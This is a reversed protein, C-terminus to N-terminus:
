GGISSVPGSVSPSVSASCRSKLAFARRIARRVSRGDGARLMSGLGIGEEAFLCPLLAGAATFRLRSCTGCPPTSVSSIFGVRGQTLGPLRYSDEVSLRAGEVPELPGWIRELREKVSNMAVPVGARESFRRRTYREIFRIWLGRKATFDVLSEVEDDNVGPLLVTNLKVTEFARSCEEIAALIRRHGTHGTIAHFREAVLTDLSINVRDLGAHSLEKAREALGIGNTTLTTEAIGPASSVARVIDALDRRLLPEGGTIRVKRVGEAGGARALLEFEDVGPEGTGDASADRDRCYFCHLNCRSTVSIRLYQPPM